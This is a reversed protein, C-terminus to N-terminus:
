IDKETLSQAESNSIVKRAGIGTHNSRGKSRSVNINVTLRNIIRTVEKRQAGSLTTTGLFSTRVMERQREPLSDYAHQLDLTRAIVEEPDSGIMGGTQEVHALFAERDFLAAGCLTRVERATYHYQDSFHLASVREDNAYSTGYKIFTVFLAHPGYNLRAFSDANELAKVYIAQEIDDPEVGPYDRAVRRAAQGALQRYLTWDIDKDTM